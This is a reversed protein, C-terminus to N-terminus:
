IVYNYAKCRGKEVEEKSLVDFMSAPQLATNTRGRLNNLWDEGAQCSPVVDAAFTLWDKLLKQLETSM